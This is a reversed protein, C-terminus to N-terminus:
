NGRGCSTEGCAVASEDRWLRLRRRFGWGAGVPGPRAPPVAFVGELGERPVKVLSPLHLSSFAFSPL